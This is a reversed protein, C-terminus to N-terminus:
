SATEYFEAIDHLPGLEVMFPALTAGSPVNWAFRYESQYLYKLNKSFIPKLQSRDVTFPDYYQVPGHVPVCGPMAKDVADLMRKIFAAEDRILLLADAHFDHLMRLDCGFGCCWVYFDPVNMYRFLHIPKADIEVDKGDADKGHLRFLLHQNPTVTHHELEKDAQAANLSPDDYTSAPAIRFRGHDFANRVHDRKGFKAFGKPGGVVTSKLRPPAYTAVAENRMKAEDFSIDARGARHARELLVDCLLRLLLTRNQPNRPQQPRGDRDTSWLNGILNRYREDLAAPQVERLYRSADYEALWKDQEPAPDTM